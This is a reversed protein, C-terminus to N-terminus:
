NIKLDKCDENVFCDICNWMDPNEKKPVILGIALEVIVFVLFVTGGILLRKIFTQQGKKIEDDKQAMVAKVLDLSGIIIIIIPTVVQLIIIIKRTLKAAAYPVVSDGCQIKEYTNLTFALNNIELAEVKDLNFGIFLLCIFLCLLLKKM